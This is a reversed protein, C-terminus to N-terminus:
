LIPLGLKYKESYGLLLVDCYHLRSSGVLVNALYIATTKECM